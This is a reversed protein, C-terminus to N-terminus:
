GVRRERTVQESYDNITRSGQQPREEAARLEKKLRKIDRMAEPLGFVGAEYDARRKESEELDAQVHGMMQL